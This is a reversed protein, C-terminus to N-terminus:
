TSIQENSTLGFISLREKVNMKIAFAHPETVVTCSTHWIKNVLKSHFVTLALMTFLAHPRTLHLNCRSLKKFTAASKHMNYHLLLKAIM